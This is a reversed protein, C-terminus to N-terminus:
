SGHAARRHRVRPRWSRRSKGSPPRANRAGGPISLHRRPALCRHRGHDRLHGSDAKRSSSNRAMSYGLVRKSRRAARLEPMLGSGPETLAWAGLKEGRALPGLFRTKHDETGFALIHGACLANHSGVILAVAADIRAIEEIILTASVSDYGAGGYQEPVMIGFLGLKAMSPILEAPFRGAEDREAAGHGIEGEAFERVTQKLLRQEETLEFNM